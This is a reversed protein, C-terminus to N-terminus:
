HRSWQLAAGAVAVGTPRCLAEFSVVPHSDANM